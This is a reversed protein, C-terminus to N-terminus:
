RPIRKFIDKSAMEKLVENQIEVYHICEIGYSSLVEKHGESYKNLFVVKKIGHAAINHCCPICPSYTLYITAIDGKKVLSLANTEAHIFHLNKRDRENEMLFDLTQGSLLGNYGTVVIRGEHNELAVGVKTFPDESRLSASLALLLGYETKSIRETSIMDSSGCLM